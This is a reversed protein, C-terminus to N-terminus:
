GDVTKDACTDGVHFHTIDSFVVIVCQLGVASVWLFLRLVRGTM